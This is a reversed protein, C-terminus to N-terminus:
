AAEELESADVDDHFFSGSVRYHSIKNGGPMTPWASNNDSQPILYGQKKLARAMTKAAVNGGGLAMIQEVPLFYVRESIDRGEDIATFAGPGDPYGFLGIVERHVTDQDYGIERVDLGIRRVVAERLNTLSSEVPDIDRAMRKYSRQLVRLVVDKIPYRQSILGAEQALGGAVLLVAAAAAVRRQQPAKHHASLTLEAHSLRERLHDVDAPYGQDILHQIFVPAAWGYNCRIAEIEAVTEDDLQEADDVSVEWIRAVAGAAPNRGDRKVKDAFGVEESITIGTSWQRVKKEEAAPTLRLKGTGEALNFVATQYQPGTMSSQGGEDIALLNGNAKAAIAEIAGPTVNFKVLAAGKYPNGWISAGLRQATTKGRSTTGAFNVLLSTASGVLNVLPGAFGSLLGICLFDGNPCELAARTANRWGDLDGAKSADEFRSVDFLRYVKDADGFVEGTPSVFVTGNWGPRSVTVVDNEPQILSLLEAVKGVAVRDASVWLGKSALNAVVKRADSVLDAILITAEVIDKSARNAAFRLLLGTNEGTEDYTRGMVEFPDCIPILSANKSTVKVWCVRKKKLTFGNSLDGHKAMASFAKRITAQTPQTNM